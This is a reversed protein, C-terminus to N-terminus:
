FRKVPVCLEKFLDVAFEDTMGSIFDCVAREDGYNDALERYLVPMKNQNKCYYEYLFEVVRVAKEKEINIEPNTYVNEFMFARLDDHAKQIEPAYHIVGNGDFGHIISMILTTIRESKSYGLVATADKPLDEKVLVGGSIADEIDHNIYAIKDAHRVIDGECTLAKAAQSHNLMGNRVEKTLNLGKGDREIAEVVRVGQESHRFGGPFLRNLVREGDHGFPTHGLDHGLAIAETLDENLRLARAITRGIQAVELTHTLRTRCHDSKPFLFVQTKYKLRRFATSHTIRDRDRQFDTRIDCPTEPIDRRNGSDACSCSRCAHECLIANEYEITRQRINGMFEGGQIEILGCFM